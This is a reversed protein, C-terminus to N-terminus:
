SFRNPCNQKRTRWMLLRCQEADLLRFTASPKMDEMAGRETIIGLLPRRKPIDGTAWSSFCSAM